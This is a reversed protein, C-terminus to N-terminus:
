KQNQKCCSLFPRYVCSDVNRSSIKLGARLSNHSFSSFPNPLNKKFQGGFIHWVPTLPGNSIELVPLIECFKSKCSKQLSVDILTEGLWICCFGQLRWNLAMKYSIQWPFNRRSWFPSSEHHVLHVPINRWMNLSHWIEVVTIKKPETLKILKESRINLLNLTKIPLIGWYLSWSHRM